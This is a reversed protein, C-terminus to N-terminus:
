GIEWAVMPARTWYLVQANVLVYNGTAEDFYLIGLADYRDLIERDPL